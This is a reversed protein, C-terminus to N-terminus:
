ERGTLARIVRAVDSGDVEGQEYQDLMKAKDAGIAAATVLERRDRASLRAATGSVVEGWSIGTVVSGQELEDLAKISAELFREELQARLEACRAKRQETANEVRTRAETASLGLDSAVKRVYTQSVGHVAAFERTSALGWRLKMDTELAERVVPDIASGRAM